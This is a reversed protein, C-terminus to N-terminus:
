IPLLGYAKWQSELVLWRTNWDKVFLNRDRVFGVKSGDPSLKAFMQFGNNRDDLASLNQTAIDYVYYFGKTNQRWVRESDTYILVKTKNADFSYGEINIKAGMDPALMNDGDLLVNREETVLNFEVLQTQGNSGREISRVIPGEDAWRGGRFYEGSFEGSAHIQELTMKSLHQPEESSTKESTTVPAPEQVLPAVQCASFSLMLALVFFFHMGLNTTSNSLTTPM